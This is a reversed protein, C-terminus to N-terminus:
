VDDTRVLYLEGNRVCASVPADLRKIANLCSSQVNTGKGHCGEVKAAALGSALFERILAAWKGRRPVDSPEVEIFKM